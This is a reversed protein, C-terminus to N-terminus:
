MTSGRWKVVAKFVVEGMDNKGEMMELLEEAAKMGEQYAPVLIASLPPTVLRTWGDLDFGILGITGPILKEYDPFKRIAQYVIPYLWSSAVYVLTKKDLELIPLLQDYIEQSKVDEAVYLSTGKKSIDQLADKYGQTNEFGTSMISTDDSIMVFDEYGRVMSETIMKYVCDYNNSKICKGKFDYPKADIYVVKKHKKELNLALMGFRYTAQIVFGEAGLGLMRDIYEKESNFNFGSNGVLVQYGLASAVEEIGKLAQATFPQACDGMIVGITGGGKIKMARAAASPEYGTDEIIKQIRQKTEESMKNTKGNLFFSVTTKSVGAKEAIENITIKKM